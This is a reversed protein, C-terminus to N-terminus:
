GLCMFMLGGLVGGVVGGAVTFLSEKNWENKGMEFGLSAALGCYLGSVVAAAVSGCEVENGVLFTLVACFFAVIAPVGFKFMRDM